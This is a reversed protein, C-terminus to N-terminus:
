LYFYFYSNVRFFVLSHILTEAYGIWIWDNAMGLQARDTGKLFTDGGAICLIRKLGESTGEGSRERRQRGGRGTIKTLSRRRRVMAEEAREKWSRRLGRVPSESHTTMSSSSSSSRTCCSCDFDRRAVM